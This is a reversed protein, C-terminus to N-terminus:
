HSRYSCVFQSNEIFCEPAYGLKIDEAYMFEKSVNIYDMYLLWLKSTRSKGKLKSKLLGIEDGTRKISDSLVLESLSEEDLKGDYARGYFQRLDEFDIFDSSQEKIEQMLLSILASEALIHARTARVIAKGSIIHTVSNEAYVEAFLDEHGSGKMLTGTSGLFSM